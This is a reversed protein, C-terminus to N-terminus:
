VSTAFTPMRTESKVKLPFAKKREGNLTLNATPWEYMAKIINLYNGEIGAKNLPKKKKKDYFLILNQWISKRCWNFHDHTKEMM